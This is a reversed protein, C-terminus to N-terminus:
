QGKMKETIEYNNADVKKIAISDYTTADPKGGATAKRPYAKGDFKATYVAHTAQGQANVCDSVVRIGWAVATIKVVTGSKPPPGPIYKSKALNQKWTGVLPDNQAWMGVSVLLVLFLLMGRRERM